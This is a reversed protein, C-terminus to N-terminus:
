TGLIKIPTGDEAIEWDQGDEQALYRRNLCSILTNGPPIVVNDLNCNSFTVGTLGSPLVSRPTCQSLCLGEIYLGDMDERDSLDWGTMDKNDYPNTM